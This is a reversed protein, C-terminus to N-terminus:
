CRPTQLRRVKVVDLATLAVEFGEFKWRLSDNRCYSNAPYMRPM